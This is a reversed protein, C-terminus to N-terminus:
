LRIVWNTSRAANVVFAEGLRLVPEGPRWTGDPLFTFVEFQGEVLLYLNDFPNLRLGLDRTVRGAIPAM